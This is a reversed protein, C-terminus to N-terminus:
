SVPLGQAAAPHLGVLPAEVPAVATSSRLCLETPFVINESSLSTTGRHIEIRKLLEEVARNGMQRLPQRITSLQPITSRAALTDDFGAVSIDDPVRVGFEAFAELCGTAINDNACFVAGPLPKGESKLLWEKTLKYGGASSYDGELLIQDAKKLGADAMARKFGKIRRQAGIWSVPGSIHMIRRHGLSILHRVMQYSGEEDDSEVNLVGSMAENSHVTVFPTHEPLHQSADLHMTPAVLIMGDIRGDCFGAIRRTDTKWDHLSFVTTSQGHRDAAEIIGNFVELFYQNLDTGHMVAAVGITNMCREVLARAAANPRYRLKAAAQLIRERTEPATRSSTRAGNLVSSVAMVSVGAARAVDALTAARVSKRALSKPM